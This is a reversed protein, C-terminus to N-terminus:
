GVLVYWYHMDDVIPEGTVRTGHRNNWTNIHGAHIVEFNELYNGWLNWKRLENMEGATPPASPVRQRFGFQRLVRGPLQWEVVFFCILPVCCRGALYAESSLGDPISALTEEDM